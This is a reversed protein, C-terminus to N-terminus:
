SEFWTIKAGVYIGAGDLNHLTLAKLKTKDVEFPLGPINGGGTSTAPNLGTAPVLDGAFKTGLTLSTPDLTLISVPPDGGERRNSAGLVTGGVVDSVDPYIDILIPGSTASFSFPNFTVNLGEFLTPDFVITRTEDAGFLLYDEWSFSKGEIFLQEQLNSIKQYGITSITEIIEDNTTIVNPGQPSFSKHDM